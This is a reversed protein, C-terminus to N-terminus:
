AAWPILRGQDNFTPEADKSWFRMLLPEVRSRIIPVDPLWENATNTMIDALEVAVEHAYPNDDCEGILEDHVMNVIRSAYLPSTRDVYCARVARYTAEKAIDSGLGQFPTNCAACYTAGGRTRKSRPLKITYLGTEGDEWSNVAAFYPKMESWTDNWKAKLMHALDEEINVGYTKQAFLRFKPIGLGGPFGFNAAKALQRAEKVEHEKKRAKAEKYDIGLINAAMMLHPDEGEVLVKGLDSFGLINHASQALTYLELGPYDCQFFVKGARPVFCERIGRMRRINQLNPKSCTTRGTEAMGFSAHVPLVVGKELMECDNNLVKQITSFKAYEELDPDGSSMCADEDLCVDGTATQRIPLGEAECAAIIRAKAEKTNRTFSVEILGTAKKKTEKRTILGKAILGERLTNYSLATEHRFQAVGNPSTRVGWNSVLQIAFQFRAQRFQDDLYEAHKEQAEYVDRTARADELPYHIVGYPDEDPLLERAKTEWESLPLGIFNSYKMRWNDKELRFGRLRSSLDDLTYGYKIWKNGDGLKGRFCGAAIDLLQQRIKTCTIRDEDYAQFIAPMLAPYNAGMVCTDFAVNHGYLTAGHQLVSGFWVGPADTATDLLEEQAGRGPTDSDAWTLCAIQPSMKGPEFLATETDFAIAETM